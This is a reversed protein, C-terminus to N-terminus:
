RAYGEGSEEGAVAKAAEGGAEEDEEPEDPSTRRKSATERETVLMMWAWLAGTAFREILEVPVRRAVALSFPVTM